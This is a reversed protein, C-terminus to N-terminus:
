WAFNQNYILSEQLIGLTSVIYSWIKNEISIKIINYVMVIETM